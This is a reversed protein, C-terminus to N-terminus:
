KETPSGLFGHRLQRNETLLCVLHKWSLKSVNKSIKRSNKWKKVFRRLHLFPENLKLANQAGNSIKGNILYKFGIRSTQLAYQLRLDSVLVSNKVLIAFFEHTYYNWTLHAFSDVRARGFKSFINKVYKEGWFIVEFFNEAGWITNSIASRM